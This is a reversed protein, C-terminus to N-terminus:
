GSDNSAAEGNANEGGQLDYDLAAIHADMEAEICQQLTAEIERYSTAARSINEASYDPDDRVHQKVNRAAALAAICQHTNATAQMLQKIHAPTETPDM